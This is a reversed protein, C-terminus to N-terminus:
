LLVALEYGNPTGKVLTTPGWSGAYTRFVVHGDLNRWYVQLQMIYLALASLPSQAAAKGSNSKGKCIEIQRILISRAPSSVRLGGGKTTIITGSLYTWPKTSSAFGLKTKPVTHRPRSAQM